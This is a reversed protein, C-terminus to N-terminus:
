DKADVISNLATIFDEYHIIKLHDGEVEIYEPKASFGTWPLTVGSLVITPRLGRREIALQDLANYVVDPDTPSDTKPMITYRVGEKLETVPGRRISADFLERKGEDSEYVEWGKGHLKDLITRGTRELGDM